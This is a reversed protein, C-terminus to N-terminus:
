SSVIKEIGNGVVLIIKFSNVIYNFMGLIIWFFFFVIYFVKFIM